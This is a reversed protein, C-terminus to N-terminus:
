PSYRLAVATSWVAAQKVRYSHGTRPVIHLWSALFHLYAAKCYYVFYFLLFFLKLFISCVCRLFPFFEWLLMDWMRLQLNHAVVLVAFRWICFSM